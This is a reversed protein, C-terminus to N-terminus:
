EVGQLSPHLPLDDLSALHVDQKLACGMFLEALATFGDPNDSIYFSHTGGSDNRLNQADLLSVAAKATEHGSDILVVDPGMIDAIIDCLLPYHTCGLIVTDVCAQRLPELYARAVQRTIDCNRGVYGNEVLPVFLPCASSVPVIDADLTQLARPFAASKITAPTGLIGVRKNRTAHAATAATPAVVGVYPCPITDIIHQPLTSSVTGCAAIIMKVNQGLLFSIDQLAFKTITQVTRTGYPVRANDGFFIIDENPALEILRKVATLGGLGSDFVGIAKKQM